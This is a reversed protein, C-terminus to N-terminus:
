LRMLLNPLYRVTVGAPLNEVIISGGEGRLFIGALEESSCLLHQDPHTGRVITCSTSICPAVAVVLKLRRTGPHERPLIVLPLHYTRILELLMIAPEYPGKEPSSVVVLDDPEVWQVYEEKNTEVYLSFPHGVSGILLFSTNGEILLLQGPPPSWRM